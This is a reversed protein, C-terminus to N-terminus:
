RRPWHESCGSESPTAKLPHRSRWQHAARDARNIKESSMQLSVVGRMERSRGQDSALMYWKLAKVYDPEVGKGTYYMYGLGSLAEVSGREAAVRFWTLAEAYDVPIGTGTVYANGLRASAEASGKLSLSKWIRVSEAHQGHTMAACAEELTDSGVAYSTFLVVTVANTLLLAGKM